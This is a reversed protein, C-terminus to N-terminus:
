VPAADFRPAESWSTRRWAQFSGTAGDGLAPRTSPAPVRLRQLMGMVRQPLLGLVEGAPLMGLEGPDRLGIGLQVAGVQELFAQSQDEVGACGPRLPM